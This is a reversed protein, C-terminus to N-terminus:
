NHIKVVRNAGLVMRLPIRVEGSPKWHGLMACHFHGQLVEGCFGHQTHPMLLHLSIALSPPVNIQRPALADLLQFGARLFLKRTV